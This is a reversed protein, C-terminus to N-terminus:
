EGNVIGSRLCVLLTFLYYSRTKLSEVLVDRDINGKEMREMIWVMYRQNIGKAEWMNRFVINAIAFHNM